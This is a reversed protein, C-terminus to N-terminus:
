CFLSYSISTHSSNPRTNKRDSPDNSRDLGNPLVAVGVATKGFPSSRDLSGEGTLCLDCGKLKDHLGVADLVLEAGRTLRANAFSRFLTAYPLLTSRPPRRIM